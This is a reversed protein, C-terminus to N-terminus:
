APPLQIPYPIQKVTINECKLKETNMEHQSETESRWFITHAVIVSARNYPEERLSRIIVDTCRSCPLNWSYILVCKPYAGAHEVYSRWLHSFPSGTVSYQGFIEEESHCDNGDPRAIVYNRYKTLDQPMISFTKDLIPKGRFSSPSFRIRCINNFDDESLLVVVAFQYATLRQDIFYPIIKQVIFDRFNRPLHTAQRSDPGDTEVAPRQLRHPEFFLGSELNIGPSGWGSRRTHHSTTRGAARSSSSRNRCCCYYLSCCCVFVAVTALGVVSVVVAIVTSTEM